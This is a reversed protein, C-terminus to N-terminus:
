DPKGAFADVPGEFAIFLVCPGSDLCSAIHAKKAPGYAYSGAKLIKPDEGDYTVKMSGSVLIMREASNHWHEPIDTNAPVRFLIDSNGASPDGHLVTINCGKPMFDPCGGWELKSDELDIGVSQDNTEVNQATIPSFSFFFLMLIVFSQYKGVLKLKNM